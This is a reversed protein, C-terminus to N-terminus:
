SVKSWCQVYRADVQFEPSYLDMERCFLLDLETEAARDKIYLVSSLCRLIRSCKIAVYEIAMYEIPM